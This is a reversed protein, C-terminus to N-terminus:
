LRGGENVYEINKKIADIIDGGTFGEKKVFDLIRLLSALDSAQQKEDETM